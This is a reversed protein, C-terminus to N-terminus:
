AHLLGECEERVQPVRLGIIIQIATANRVVGHAGMAMFSQDEQVLEPNKVTVRLRTACNNLQEINDKGGLGAILQEALGFKNEPHTDTTANSQKQKYDSKKYLKIESNRGPTKINFKVILTRFVLFYIATFSIGIGLQIFM